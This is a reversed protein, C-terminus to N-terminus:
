APRDLHGRRRLAANLERRSTIGLKGFVKRLHWEVTRASIFLTTGIEQNTQGDRALRAILAERPTLDSLTEATRKRITEGTALLERRAREAYGNMGIASLMDYAERLQTRADARRGERRLWEGYLLHARALEPRSRTRALYEVAARYRREAAEGDSLLARCRTEIGAGLDTGGALASAALRAMPEAALDPNGSRAAAEILEPLTWQAAFLDRSGNDARTAATLAADYRGLSNYLVAAAWNAYTVPAERGTDAGPAEALMAEIRRGAEDTEGRLAALTLPGFADAPAGTAECVADAEAILAGAAAFDGSWATVTTLAVLVVPLLDFAGAARLAEAERELLARWADHDWLAVAAAHALWGWRPTGPATLDAAAAANVAARLAPAAEAPGATIVLSLADLLMEARDPRPSPPLERAARSVDALSGGPALGGAFMAALWATLYTERARRPGIAELRRAARLLLPAAEGARGAAFAVHGRLTDARARHEETLPEAEALTLLELVKAYSGAKLNAQAAALFRDARRPPEATLQIAKELMAAGAAPGGRAQARDASRELEAAVSEDPGSAAQARHWARRDPDAEADTADALAQHAAQREWVAASRYVASRLLPHRFSVRTSFRILGAEIAPTAAPLPI